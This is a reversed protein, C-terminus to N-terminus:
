PCAGDHEIDMGSRKAVCENMYTVDDCGCVPDVVAPCDSPRRECRGPGGCDAVECYDMAECDESEDCLGFTDDNGRADDCGLSAGLILVALAPLLLSRAM